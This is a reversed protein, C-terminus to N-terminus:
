DWVMAEEDGDNDFELEYKAASSIRQGNEITARYDEVLM